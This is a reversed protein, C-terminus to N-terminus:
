GLNSKKVGKYRIKIGYVRVCNAYETKKNYKQM